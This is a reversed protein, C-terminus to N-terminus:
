APKKLLTLKFVAWAEHMGIAYWTLKKADQGQTPLHSVFNHKNTGQTKLSCVSLSSAHQQGLYTNWVSTGVNHKGWHDPSNKIEQQKSKLPLCTNWFHFIYVALRAVDFWFIYISTNSTTTSDLSKKRSELHEADRLLGKAQLSRPSLRNPGCARFEEM